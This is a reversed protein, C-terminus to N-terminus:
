QTGRRRAECDQRAPWAEGAVRPSVDIWKVAHHLRHFVGAAQAAIERDGAASRFWSWRCAPPGRRAFAATRMRSSSATSPSRASLPPSRTPLDGSRAQRSQDPRRGGGRCVPRPHRHRKLRECAEETETSTGVGCPIDTGAAWDLASLSGPKLPIGEAAVIAEYRTRADDRFRDLPFTDGFHEVLRRECDAITIGILTLYIQDTLDFGLPAAPAKTWSRKYTNETDLLLGDMDFIFAQPRRDM